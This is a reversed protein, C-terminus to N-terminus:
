LMKRLFAETMQPTDDPAPSLQSVEALPAQAMEPSFSELDEVDVPVCVLGTHENVSYPICTHGYPVIAWSYVGKPIKIIRQLAVSLNKALLHHQFAVKKGAIRQPIATSPIVVHLSSNGSFNVSFTVQSDQLADLLPKMLKVSRDCNSNRFDFDIVMDAGILDRTQPNYIGKTCQFGPWNRRGQNSHIYAALPLIHSPERLDVYLESGAALWIKRNEVYSHIARQVSPRSYHDFADQRLSWRWLFWLKEPDVGRERATRKISPTHESDALEGLAARLNEDRLLSNRYELDEQGAEIMQFYSDDDAVQTIRGEAPPNKQFAEVTQEWLTTSALGRDSEVTEVGIQKRSGSIYDVLTRNREHADPPVPWWGELVEVSEIRAMKPSFSDYDEPRIPISVKGTLEHISYPLRLFHSPRSFSRDLHASEKVKKRVLGFFARYASFGHFGEPIAEAPIIIHPSANGSFKILFYIGLERFFKVLPRAIDFSRSWSRKFDIEAVLDCGWMQGGSSYRSITGHMSPWQRGHTYSQSISLMLPLIDEPKRLEQFLPHFNRVVAIKRDKAFSFIAHQIDPRSYYSVITTDKSTSIGYYLDQLTIGYKEAIENLSVYPETEVLREYDAALHDLELSEAQEYYEQLQERGQHLMRDYRNGNEPRNQTHQSTVRAQNRNKRKKKKRKKKM